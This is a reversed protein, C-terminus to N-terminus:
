KNRRDNTVQREDIAAVPVYYVGFKAGESCGTLAAVAAAAGMWTTVWVILGLIASLVVKWNM